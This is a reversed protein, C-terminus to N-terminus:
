KKKGKRKYNEKLLKEAHEVVLCCINGKSVDGKEELHYANIFNFYAGITNPNNKAQILIDYSKM